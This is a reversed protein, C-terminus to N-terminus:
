KSIIVSAPRLLRDEFLYGKRRVEIINDTTGDNVVAIAEHFNHDFTGMPCESVGNKTLASKLSQQILTFGKRIDDGMEVTLANDFNDLTELLDRAFKENAFKIAAQKDREIRKRTNDAEAVARLYKDKWENTESILRQFTEPTNELVDDEAM